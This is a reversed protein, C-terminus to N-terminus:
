QAFLTRMTKMVENIGNEGPIHAANEVVSLHLHENHCAEMFKLVEKTSTVIDTEGQIVYYPIRISALTDRLDISSTEKMLSTNNQFGNKTIALIDKLRYDPSTLLGRNIRGVDIQPETRNQYAQTYKRFWRSVSMMEQNTPYEKALVARIQEKKESSIPANILEDMVDESRMLDKIVQGYAIVGDVLNPYQNATKASLITGWSQSFLYIKNDAFEQKLSLILDKTMEVYDDICMDAPLEANNIGCGYQDWCVFICQETFEPFLGRTGVNYPVPMGPGGHLFILLPLDETKGEISVKQDFGNLQYTKVLSIENADIISKRKKNM